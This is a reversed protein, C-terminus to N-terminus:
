KTEPNDLSKLQGKYTKMAKDRYEFSNLTQNEMPDNPHGDLWTKIEGKIAPEMIVVRKQFEEPPITRWNDKLFMGFGGFLLIAACLAGFLGINRETSYKLM